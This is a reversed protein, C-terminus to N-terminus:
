QLYHALDIAGGSDLLPFLNLADGENTGQYMNWFPDDQTALPEDLGFLASSDFDTFRTPHGQPPGQHHHTRSPRPM